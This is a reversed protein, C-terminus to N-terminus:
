FTPQQLSEFLELTDSEGITKIQRVPETCKYKDM